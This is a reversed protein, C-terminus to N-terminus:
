LFSRSTKDQAGRLSTVREEGNASLGSPLSDDSAPRCDANKSAINSTGQEAVEAFPLTLLSLLVVVIGLIVDMATERKRSMASGEFRVENLSEVIGVRSEEVRWDSWESGYTHRV